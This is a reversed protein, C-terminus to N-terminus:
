LILFDFFVLFASFVLDPLDAVKDRIITLHLDTVESHFLELSISLLLVSAIFAKESGHICRM